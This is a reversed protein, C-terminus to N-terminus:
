VDRAYTNAFREVYLCGRPYVRGADFSHVRCTMMEPRLEGCTSARSPISFKALDMPNYTAPLSCTDIMSVLLYSLLTDQVGDPYDEFRPSLPHCRDPSGSPRTAVLSRRSSERFTRLSSLLHCGNETRQRDIEENKVPEHM